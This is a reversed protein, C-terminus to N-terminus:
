LVHHEPPTPTSTYSSIEDLFNMSSSYINRIILKYEAQFHSKCGFCTAPTWNCVFNHISKNQVYKMSQCIQFVIAVGQGFIISVLITWQWLDSFNRSDLYGTRIGNSSRNGYNQEAEWHLNRFLVEVSASDEEKWIEGWEANMTTIRYLERLLYAYM